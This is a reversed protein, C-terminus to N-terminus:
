GFTFSYVSVGPSFGLRLQADRLHPTDVITYLRSIGRVAITRLPRGGVSVRVSGRGGMVLYVKSAHFHLALAARERSVAREHGVRWEGGYAWDNQPPARVAGYDRVANAAPPLGVYRDDARDLGLYTEPTILETPTMDALEARPQGPEGLLQRILRGTRDYEGEGFHVNRVHANRDILYEAPWYQNGYAKWTGYRADLAVPWAVGLQKVAARVNSTKGEFAFEPTHVGVIVLGRRHYDRWWAKLHPLTRLCNICSYTWFDVLVVHGRLRALTLPKSNIWQQIGHFDPAPGYDPVDSTTPTAVKRAALNHGRAFADRGSSSAETKRQLVDTWGPLWTQLKTDLNFVLAFAAAAIVVGFAVRFREVGSRIRRSVRQGGIAIALLVLSAGATYAVAVAITKFGFNLSAASSTVFAIAPGGCPVFVFGLACGLLFGGGLDSAPRRSLRSLPREIWVGVQPFILTAAILFLLAISINRLLDDPLGLQDLIWTAFLISVLFTVALGAIIAYPRRRSGSAGGALVIPLVPLVCPSIATILGAVFALGIAVGM